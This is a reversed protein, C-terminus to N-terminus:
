QLELPESVKKLNPAKVRGPLGWPMAANNKVTRPRTPDQRWMLLGSEIACSSFNYVLNRGINPGEDLGLMTASTQVQVRAPDQVSESGNVSLDKSLCHPARGQDGSRLGGLILEHHSVSASWWAGPFSSWGFFSGASPRIERRLGTNIFLRLDHVVDPNTQLEQSRHQPSLPNRVLNETQFWRTTSDIKSSQTPALLPAM